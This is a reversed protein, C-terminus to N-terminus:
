IILCLWFFNFMMFIMPLCFLIRGDFIYYYSNGFFCCTLLYISYYFSILYYLILLFFSFLFIGLFFNMVLYESFFSLSFPFGFNSMMVLSFFLIMLVSSNFFGRMYYVLRSGSCHYFEGILYFMLSSTYGHSLMMLLGMSKSYVIMCLESLLVFGMHCISSYAALSKGDSQMLCIFSCIIMSLFSIILWFELSLFNVSKCFRYVGVGGLKLMVGALIMSISTPAEVHAKPLWLHLFYVPFKVLFCLSLFFMLEYSIFFDFYIFNFFFFYLYYYVFFTYWFIFYLFNFYYCASIKEVQRGYGSLAFVVPILTLEYFIYFILINGNSFFIFGFFIVLLSYFILSLSYESFIIFGLLFVSMFSILVYNLSDFFFFLGGWSLWIFWIFGYVFFFLFFFFLWFSFGFLFIFFFM